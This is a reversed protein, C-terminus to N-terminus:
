KIVWSLPGSTITSLKDIEKESLGYGALEDRGKVLQDKWFFGAKRDQKRMATAYELRAVAMDEKIDYLARM